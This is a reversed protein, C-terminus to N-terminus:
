KAIMKVTKVNGDAFTVIAVYLGPEITTGLNIQPGDVPTSFVVSGDLAVLAFNRIDEWGEIVITDTFPNPGIQFMATEVSEIGSTNFKLTAPESEGAPYCAYLTVTHEGDAPTDLTYSTEEIGTAVTNGDLAVRYTPTNRETEEQAAAFWNTVVPAYDNRDIYGLDQGKVSIMPVYKDNATGYNDVWLGDLVDTGPQAQFTFESTTWFQGPRLGGESKLEAVGMGLFGGDCSFGVFFGNPASIPKDFTFSNWEGDINPVNEVGGLIQATPRGTEDLALIYMHVYPHPNNTNATFWTVEEVVAKNNFAVGILSTQNGQDFGIKEVPEEKCYGFEDRPANWTLSVKNEKVEHALSEPTNKIEKLVLDTAINDKVEIKSYIPEYGSQEIAFDYAEERDYVNPFALIGDADSTAKYNAYGIMRGSIGELRNGAEDRLNFTVAHRPSTEMKVDCVANQGKIVTIPQSTLTDHGYAEITLTVDGEAVRDLQYKGQADTVTFYSTGSLTVKANALPGNEDSVTGSLSGFNDAKTWLLDAIAVEDYPTGQGPNMTDIAADDKTVAVTCGAIRADNTAYFSKFPFFASANKTIYVVLNKGKWLYPQTFPIDFAGLGAALDVAGSYVKTLTSPDVLNGDAFNMRDTEGVWVDIAPSAFDADNNITFRIGNLKGESANIDNAFYLTQVACNKYYFNVPSNAGYGLSEANAPLTATRTNTVIGIQRTVSTNNEANNDQAFNIRAYIHRGDSTAPTWNLKVSVAKGKEIDLGQATALTTGDTDLLEITYDSGNVDNSGTNRYNFTYEAPQNLELLGNGFLTLAELDYSHATGVEINDILIGYDDEGFYKSKEVSIRVQCLKDKDEEPLPIRVEAFDYSLVHTMDGDEPAIRYVRNFTKGFDDSVLVNIKVYDPKTPPMNPNMGSNDYQQAKYTFAVVPNSGMNVYNTTVDCTYLTWNELCRSGGVGKNPHFYFDSIDWGEPSGQEFDEYIYNTQVSETVNGTCEVTVESRLPDNTLFTITGTYRGPTKSKLRVTCEFGQNGAVTEPLGAVELEPSCEGISLSLPASGINFMSLVAESEEELSTKDPLLLTAPAYIKPTSEAVMVDDIVTLNSRSAAQSHFGIYYDGTTTPTITRNFLYWNGFSRGETLIENVMGDASAASGFAVTLTTVVNSAAQPKLASFFLDYTKGAEMHIAPTFMWSDIAYDQGLMVAYKTGSTGQLPQDSGATGLSAGIWHSEDHGPTSTYTWGDSLPYPDTNPVQEFDEILIYPAQVESRAPTGSKVTRGPTEHTPRLELQDRQSVKSPIVVASAVGGALALLLIAYYNKKM